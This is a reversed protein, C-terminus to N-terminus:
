ILLGLKQLPSVWLKLKQALKKELWFFIRNFWNVRTRVRQICLRATPSSCILATLGASIFFVGGPIPTAMSVLGILIVFVSVITILLNM